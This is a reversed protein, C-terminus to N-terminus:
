HKAPPRCCNREWYLYPREIKTVVNQGSGWAALYQVPVTTFSCFVPGEEVGDFSLNEFAHLKAELKAFGEQCTAVEFRAKLV